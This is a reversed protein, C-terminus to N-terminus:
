SKPKTGTQIGALIEALQKRYAETLDKVVQGQEEKPQEIPPRPTEVLKTFTESSPPAAPRELPEQSKAEVAKAQFIRAAQQLRARLDEVSTESVKQHRELTEASFEAIQNKFAEMSKQFVSELQARAQQAWDKLVGAGVGVQKYVSDSAERVVQASKNRIEALARESSEEAQTQVQKTLTELHKEITEQLRAEIQRPGKEHVEQITKQIQGRYEDALTLSEKTLSELASRTLSSIQEQTKQLVGKADDALARRSSETLGALHKQTEEALRTGSVRLQEGLLDLVDTAQRQLENASSELLDEATKQLRESVDKAGKEQFESWSKKLVAQFDDLVSQVKQRVADLAPNSLDDLKSPFGEVKAKFDSEIKEYATLLKTAAAGSAVNLSDVAWDVRNSIIKKAEEAEREFVQRARPNASSIEDQIQQQMKQIKEQFSQEAGKFASETQDKLSDALRRTLDGISKEFSKDAEERFKGQLESAATELAKRGAEQINNQTKEVEAQWGQELGDLKSILGEVKERSVLLRDVLSGLQDELARVAKEKEGVEQLREALEALNTRSQSEAQEAPPPAQEHVTEPAREATREAQQAFRSLAEVAMNFQNFKESNSTQEAPGSSIGSAPASTEPAPTLKVAPVKEVRGAPAAQAPKEQGRAGAGVPGAKQWDEPPFKIGWVNQAETLEVGVEYPDEPFRKEGVWIVRAKATRGLVPNVISIPTGTALPHFTAIKAGQKNVGITWTNEKFPQGSADVGQITIPIIMSLRVSRRGVVDPAEANEQKSVSGM